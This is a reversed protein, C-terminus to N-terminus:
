DIVENTIEQGRHAPLCHMVISDEKSNELLDQNIQYQKFAEIEKKEEGMSVWTDTYLVDANEVAKEPNREIEYEGEIRPEHKDPCSVTINIGTKDAVNILSHCVNSSGDGLFVLKLNKLPKKEKITYLDSLAQCPHLLDSLANIIPIKSAKKMKILDNHDHVRFIALDNYRNLVRITDEVTEGRGLQSDQKSLFTVNGGLQRIAVEFSIRTRTSSKYFFMGAEKDKLPKERQVSNKLEDTKRLTKEIEKEELNRIDLLHKM